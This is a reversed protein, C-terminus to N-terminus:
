GLHGFMRDALSPLGDLPIVDPADQREVIEAGLLQAMDLFKEQALSLITAAHAPHEFSAAARVNDLNLTALLEADGDERKIIMSLNM